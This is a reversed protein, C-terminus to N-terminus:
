VRLAGVGLHHGYSKELRDSSLGFGPSKWGVGAAPAPRRASPQRGHHWMATQKTNASRAGTALSRCIRCWSAAPAFCRRSSLSLSRERADRLGRDCRRRGGGDRCCQCPRRRLTHCVPEVRRRDGVTPRRCGSRRDRPRRTRVVRVRVDTGPAYIWGHEAEPNWFTLDFGPGQAAAGAMDTTPDCGSRVARLDEPTVEGALSLRRSGGALWQGPAEGGVYYDDVGEAVATLYYAEQGHGLKWVSLVVWAGASSVGAVVGAGHHM